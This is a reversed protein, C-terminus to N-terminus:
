LPFTPISEQITVLKGPHSFETLYKMQFPVRERTLKTTELANLAM